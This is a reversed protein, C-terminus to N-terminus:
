FRASTIAVGSVGFIVVGRMLFATGDQRTGSMDWETWVTDGDVATRPLRARLDPVSALIQTWNGGHQGHREEIRNYYDPDLGPTDFSIHLL